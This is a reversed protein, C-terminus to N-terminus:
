KTMKLKEKHSWRQYVYDAAALAVMVLVVLFLVLVILRHIESLTVRIDQDILKDPHSMTPIVVLGVLVGIVIMKVIGKGAEVLSQTSFLRKFGSIPSLNGLNFSLKKPTYVLGVQGVTGIVAA